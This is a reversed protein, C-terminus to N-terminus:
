LSYDLDYDACVMDTSGVSIFVDVDKGGFGTCDYSEVLAASDGCCGPRGDPSTVEVAAEGCQLPDVDGGSDCELFVCVDLPVDATVVAAPQEPCFSADNGPFLYWDAEPGVVTGLAPESMAADCGLGDLELASSELAHDEMDIPICAPGGTCIGEVCSLPDDCTSGIDCLCGETGPACDGTDPDPGDGSGPGTTSPDPNTDGSSDAGNTMGDTMGDTMNTPDTTPPPTTTPSGDEGTSGATGTGDETESETEATEAAPGCGAVILAGWITVDRLATWSM